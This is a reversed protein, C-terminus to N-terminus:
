LQDSPQGTRDHHREFLNLYRKKFPLSIINAAAHLLDPVNFYTLHRRVRPTQPTAFLFGVVDEHSKM